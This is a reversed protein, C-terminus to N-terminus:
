APGVFGVMRKPSWYHRTSGDNVYYGWRSQRLQDRRFDGFDEAIRGHQYGLIPLSVILKHGLKCKLPFWPVDIFPHEHAIDRVNRPFNEPMTSRYRTHEGDGELLCQCHIAESTSRV